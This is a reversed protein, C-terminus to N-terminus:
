LLVCSSGSNQNRIGQLQVENNYCRTELYNIRAEQLRIKKEHDSLKKIDERIQFECDEIRANSVGLAHAHNQNMDNLSALVEEKQRNSERKAREVELKILEELEAQSISFGKAGSAVRGCIQHNHLRQRALDAYQMFIQLHQSAEAMIQVREHYGIVVSSDQVTPVISQAYSDRQLPVISRSIRQSSVILGSTSSESDFEKFEEEEEAPGAELHPGHNVVRDEVPNEIPKILENAWKIMAVAFEHVVFSRENIQIYNFPSMPVRMGADASKKLYDGLEKVDWTYEGLWQDQGDIRQIRGELWPDKLPTKSASSVLVNKILDDIDNEIKRLRAEPPAENYSLDVKIANEAWEKIDCSLLDECQDHAELIDLLGEIVVKCDSKSKPVNLILRHSELQEQISITTTQTFCGSSFGVRNM